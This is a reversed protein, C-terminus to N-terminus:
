ANIILYLDEAQLWGAKMRPKVQSKIDATPFLPQKGCSWHYATKRGLLRLAEGM